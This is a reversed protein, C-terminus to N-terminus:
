TVLPLALTENSFASSRRIALNLPAVFFDEFERLDSNRAQLFSLHLPRIKRGAIERLAKIM